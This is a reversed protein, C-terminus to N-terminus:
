ISNARNYVDDGDGDDDIDNDTDDVDDQSQTMCCETSRSAIFENIACIRKKHHHNNNTSTYHTIHSTHHYEHQQQMAVAVVTAHICMTSQLSRGSLATLPANTSQPQLV